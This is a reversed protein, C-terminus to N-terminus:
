NKAAIFNTTKIEMRTRSVSTKGKLFLFLNFDPYPKGDTAKLLETHDEAYTNFLCVHDSSM